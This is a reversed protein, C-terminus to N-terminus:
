QIKKTEEKLKAGSALTEGVEGKDWGQFLPYLFQRQKMPSVGSTFYSTFTSYVNSYFHFPTIIKNLFDYFRIIVQQKHVSGVQRLKSKPTQVKIIINQKPTDSQIYWLSRLRASGVLSTM